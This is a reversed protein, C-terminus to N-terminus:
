PLKFNLTTDESCDPFLNHSALLTKPLCGPSQPSALALQLGVVGKNHMRAIPGNPSVHIGPPEQRSRSYESSYEAEEMVCWCRSLSVSVRLTM